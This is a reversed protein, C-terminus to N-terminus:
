SETQRQGILTQITMIQNMKMLLQYRKRLKIKGKILKKPTKCNVETLNSNGQSQSSTAIVVEDIEDEDTDSAIEAGEVFVTIDDRNKGHYQSIKGQELM